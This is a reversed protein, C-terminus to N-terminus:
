IVTDTIINSNHTVYSNYWLSEFPIGDVPSPQTVKLTLFTVVHENLKSLFTSKSIAYNVHMILFLQKCYGFNNVRRFFYMLLVSVVIVIMICINM